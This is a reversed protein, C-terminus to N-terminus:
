NVKWVLTPGYRNNLYGVCSFTRGFKEFPTAARFASEGSKSSNHFAALRPIALSGDSVILGGPELCELVNPLRRRHLWYFDSGGEGTSDGRHFFVSVRNGPIKFALRFTEYGKGKCLNVTIINGSIRCEFCRIKVETAKGGLTHGELRNAEILVVSDCIEHLATVDQEHTDVFWFESIWAQFATIPTRWDTGASPYFLRRAQPTAAFATTDIFRQM